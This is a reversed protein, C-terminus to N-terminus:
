AASEKKEVGSELKSEGDVFLEACLGCGDKAEDAALIQVDLALHHIRRRVDETLKIGFGKSNRKPSLGLSNRIVWGLAKPELKEHSGRDRLIRNATEALQGVHVIQDSQGSHSHSFLAEITIAEGDFANGVAIQDQDERLLRVLDARLQPADVIASGLIRALMRIDSRLGPVDFDSGRVQGAYRMRYDALRAQLDDALSRQELDSVVPLKGRSAPLHVRLVSDAGAGLQYPGAYIAKACFPDAIGGKTPLYAGAYNSMSLLKMITPSARHILLTPQLHMPLSRFEAMNIDALSLGHRVSCSLLQLVVSAEPRSGSLILFPALSFLDAFWSALTWYTLKRSAQECIGREMFLTCIRKFNGAASVSLRSCPLKLSQLLSPHIAPPVYIQGQYEIRERLSNDASDVLYLRENDDKFLEICRGNAFVVGGTECVNETKKEDFIKFDAIEESVSKVPRQVVKISSVYTGGM